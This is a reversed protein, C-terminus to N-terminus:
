NVFEVLAIAATISNGLCHILISLYVNRKWWILFMWPLVTVFIVPINQPQWLHFMAFFLASIVPCWAGYRSLRPMLYGRFYLEEVIPHAIGDIALRMVLTALIATSTPNVARLSYPNLFWRPLDPLVVETLFPPIGATLSTVAALYVGFGLLFAVILTYQRPPIKERYLVVTSLSWSADQANRGLSYLFALPLPIGVVLFSLNLAFEAHFGQQSAVPVALVYFLLIAAGPVVHMLLSFALSHQPSPNLHQHM